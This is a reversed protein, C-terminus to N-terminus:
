KWSGISEYLAQARERNDRMAQLESETWKDFRRWGITHPPMLTIGHKKQYLLRGEYEALDILDPEFREKKKFCM